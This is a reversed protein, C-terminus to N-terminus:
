TCRGSQVGKIRLTGNDLTGGVYAVDVEQTCQGIVGPNTSAVTARSTVELKKLRKLMNTDNRLTMSAFTNERPFPNLPGTITVM